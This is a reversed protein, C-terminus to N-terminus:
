PLRTVEERPAPIVGAAVEEVGAGAASVLCFFWPSFRRGFGGTAVTLLHSSFFQPLHCPSSGSFQPVAQASGEQWQAIPLPPQFLLLSMGRLPAQTQRFSVPLSLLCVPVPM